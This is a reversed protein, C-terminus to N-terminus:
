LYFINSVFLVQDISDLISEQKDLQYIYAWDM